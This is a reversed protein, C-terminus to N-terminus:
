DDISQIASERVILQNNSRQLNKESQISINLLDIQENAPGQDEDEIVLIKSISQSDKDSQKKSWHVQSLIEEENRQQYEIIRQQRALEEEALRKEHAAKIEAM